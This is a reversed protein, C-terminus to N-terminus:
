AIFCDLLKLHNYLVLNKVESLGWVEHPDWIKDESRECHRGKIGKALEYYDNM